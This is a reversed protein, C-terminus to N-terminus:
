QQWRPGFWLLAALGIAVALILWIFHAFEKSGDGTGAAEVEAPEADNLVVSPEDPLAPATDTPESARPMEPLDRQCYRCVIAAEKITEACFPCTKTGSSVEPNSTTVSTPRAKGDTNPQQKKRMRWRELLAFVITFLPHLGSGAIMRTLIENATFSVDMVSWAGAIALNVVIATGIGLPVALLIIFGLSKVRRALAYGFFIDLLYSAM